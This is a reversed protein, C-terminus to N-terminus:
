KVYYCKVQGVAVNGVVLLPIHNPDKSIWADIDDSSKKQGSTTFKFKIHYAMQKSKDKLKVQEEGLYHVTLTESKSGSFVSAMIEEGPKLSAYDIRRLFYFVSLMDFTEGTATLNKTTVDKKGNKDIRIRKTQGGVVSGAYCYKIDDRVYKGNEHTLKTYSIPKFGKKKVNSLLTDRVQYVADAWPKTKGTLKLQYSDGTNKLSLTAEGADKHILGWKYTIVYNLTENSFEKNAFGCFTICSLFISTLLIKILRM